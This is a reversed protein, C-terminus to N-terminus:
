TFAIGGGSMEAARKPEVLSVWDASSLPLLGMTFCKYLAVGLGALNLAIYILKAQTLDLNDSQVAQFYTQVQTVAKIPTWVAMGVIMISFIHVGSGAMWMMFMTMFMQKGPQTAMDFAWRRKLALLKEEEAKGIQLADTKGKALAAAKIFGIPDEVGPKSVSLDLTLM